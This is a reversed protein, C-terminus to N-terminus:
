PEKTQSPDINITVDTTQGDQLTVGRKIVQQVQAPLNVTIQLDYKGAPIGEMLFRGRQDVIAPRLNVLADGPKTLRAFIRGREPLPRNEVTVAGRLTASGFSVFVRVGALQEGDKVELGRTTVVGDHEYRTITFGKPPMPQGQAVFAFNLSGPPLGSVFFSGDPGLPSTSWQSFSTGGEISIVGLARFQLQLLQALATKDGNELIVVGSISVGKTLRVTLGSLDHDIVDFTFPEIRRGNNQISSLLVSYKGPVLGEVIFEGRTNSTGNNISYEVRQGLHRQLGIRINPLPLGNEDVVQGSASFMQVTRGVAIDVNDAEGGESVEVITAKAPDSVDPHFVQKYSVNQDQYYTVNMETDSRGVAVKYRGPALGFVRYIGRDDTQVSGVAYVMRQMKQEFFEAPYVNVQQDIVLRDDADTVRGTIVGGRVLAFNVDEIGEDEAVLVSKQKAAGFADPLVYAPACIAITYSGPALNSIRYFGEQDTVSRQFGEFPTLGDGGKRVGIAVGPVGKDKFTVRGSISGRPVRAAEKVSTQACLSVAVSLITFLVAPLHRASFSM